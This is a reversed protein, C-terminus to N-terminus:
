RATVRASGEAGTGLGDIQITEALEAVWREHEQASAAVAIAESLREGAARSFGGYLAVWRGEPLREITLLLGGVRRQWCRPAPAQAGRRGPASTVAGPRNAPM